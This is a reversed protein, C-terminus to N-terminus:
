EVIQLIAKQNHRAAGAALVCRIAEITRGQRGIIKGVDNAPLRLRFTVKRATESHTLEIEDPNGTLNGIIYRLFEEM